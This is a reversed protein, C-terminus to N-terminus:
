GWGGVGLGLGWVEVLHQVALAELLQGHVVAYGKVPTVCGGRIEELASEFRNQNQQVPSVEVLKHCLRALLHLLALVHESGHIHGCGWCCFTNHANLSAAAAAVGHERALGDM